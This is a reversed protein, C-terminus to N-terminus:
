QSRRAGRQVRKMRELYSAYSADQNTGGPLAPTLGPPMPLTPLDGVIAMRPAPIPRRLVVTIEQVESTAGACITRIRFVNTGTPIMSLDALRLIANTTVFMGGYRNSNAPVVEIMARDDAHCHRIELSNTSTLIFTLLFNM